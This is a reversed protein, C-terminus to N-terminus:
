LDRDDDDNDDNNEHGSKQAQITLCFEQFQFNKRNSVRMERWVIYYKGM